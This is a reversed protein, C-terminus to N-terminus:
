LFHMESNVGNSFHVFDTRWFELLSIVLDIIVDIQTTNFSVVANPYRWEIATQSVNQYKQSLRLRYCGNEYNKKLYTYIEMFPSLNQVQHSPFTHMTRHLSLICPELKSM